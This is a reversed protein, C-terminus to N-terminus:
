HAAAQAAYWRGDRQQALHHAALGDVHRTITARQYGVVGSLEDVSAGTDGCTRLHQWTREAPRGIGGAQVPRFVIKEDVAGTGASESPRTRTVPRPTRNVRRHRRGKQKRRKRMPM